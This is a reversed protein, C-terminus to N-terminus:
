LGFEGERESQSFRERHRELYVQHADKLELPRVWSLGGRAEAGLRASYLPVGERSFTVLGRDFAADWLASLLLGNYVDLRQADEECESWPVIHSARLLEGERIGTLPCRGQWYDMLSARFVEQGIRQVVMRETETTRPLQGTRQRFVELPVDPLSVSLQYVRPLVGYLGTLDAFEYRALGPGQIEAVPMGLERVVGPHDIALRWPGEPAVAALWITGQATTSGFGAWGGEEGLERRYGYQWAAKRSDERIIFSQSGHMKEVTSSALPVRNTAEM